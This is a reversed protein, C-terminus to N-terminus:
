LMFFWARNESGGDHTIEASLVCTGPVGVSDRTDALSPVTDGHSCLPRMVTPAVLCSFYCRMPRPRGEFLLRAMLSPLPRSRSIAHWMCPSWLLAHPCAKIAFVVLPFQNLPLIFPPLSSPEPTQSYSSSQITSTRWSSRGLGNWVVESPNILDQMKKKPVEKKIQQKRLDRGSLWLSLNLLPLLSLLPHLLSYEELPYNLITVSLTGIDKEEEHLLIFAFCYDRELENGGM